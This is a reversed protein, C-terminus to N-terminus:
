DKEQEEDERSRWFSSTELLARFRCKSERPHLLIMLWLLLFIPDLDIEVDVREVIRLITEIVSGVLQEFSCLRETEASERDSQVVLNEISRFNEGVRLLHSNQEDRRGLQSQSPASTTNSM